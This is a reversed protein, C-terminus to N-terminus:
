AKILKLNPRFFKLMITTVHMSAHLCSTDQLGVKTMQVKSRQSVSSGPSRIQRDDQNILHLEFHGFLNFFPKGSNNKFQIFLTMRNLLNMCM